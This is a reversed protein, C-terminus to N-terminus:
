YLCPNEPMIRWFKIAWGVWLDLSSLWYITLSPLSNYVGNPLRRQVVEAFYMLIDVYPDPVVPVQVKELVKPLLPLSFFCSLMHWGSAPIQRAKWPKLPWLPSGPDFPHWKTEMVFWCQKNSYRQDRKWFGQQFFFIWASIQSVQNTRVFVGRFFPCGVAWAPKALEWLRLFVQARLPLAVWCPVGSNALVVKTNLWVSPDTWLTVLQLFPKGFHCVM